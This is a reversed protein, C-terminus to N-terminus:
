TATGRQGQPTTPKYQSCRDGTLHRDCTLTYEADVGGNSARCSFKRTGERLSRSCSGMLEDPWPDEDWAEVKLRHHTDVQGLNFTANWVPYNSYLVSTKRHLSGYSLKVYSDSYDWIDADGELRWGRIITVSLTGRMTNTPCCSSGCVEEDGVNPSKEEKRLYDMIAARVQARKEPHPILDSMLRLSYQVVDPHDKLTRLWTNYGLSDNSLLSINGHWGKGGVVETQHQHLGM